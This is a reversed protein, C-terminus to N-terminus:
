LGRGAAGERLLRRRLTEGLNAGADYAENLEPVGDWTLGSELQGQRFGDAVGQAFARWPHWTKGDRRLAERAADREACYCEDLDLGRAAAVAEAIGACVERYDAGEYDAAKREKAVINLLQANTAQQCFGRFDDREAKTM